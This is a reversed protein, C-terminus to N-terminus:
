AGLNHTLHAMGETSTAFGLIEDGRSFGGNDLMGTWFAAGPADPARGLGNQYLSTVYAANGQGTHDNMFEASGAIEAALQAPTLTAYEMKFNPM